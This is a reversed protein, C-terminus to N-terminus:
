KTLVFLNEPVNANYATEVSIAYEGAGGKHAKTVVGCFIGPPFKADWGSTFLREGKNISVERSPWVFDLTCKGESYGMLVGWFSNNEDTVSVRFAKNSILVCESVSDSIKKGIVGALVWGPPRYSFLPDGEQYAGNYNRLLLINANKGINGYPFVPLLKSKAPFGSPAFKDSLAEEIKKRKELEKELQLITYGKEFLEQERARLRRDMAALNFFKGPFHSLDLLAERSKAYPTYYIYKTFLRIEQTKRAPVIFCLFASLFLFIIFFIKGRDSEHM